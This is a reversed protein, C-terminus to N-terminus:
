VLRIEATAEGDGHDLHYRVDPDDDGIRDESPTGTWSDRVTVTETTSAPVVESVEDVPTYAVRPGVRNLAGLFRGTRAGENSLELVLPPAETGDYTNPFDFSASFRPPSGGIPTELKNALPEDDTPWTLRPTGSADRPIRFVLLGHRRDREYWEDDGWVIRYLREETTPESVDDGIHLAFDDRALSGEVQVTAVLYQTAGHSVAISDPSGPTVFGYQLRVSELAVEGQGPDTTTTSM